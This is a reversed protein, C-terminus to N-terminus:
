ANEVEKEEISWAGIYMYGYSGNPTATINYGNSAYNMQERSDTNVKEAWQRVAPLGVTDIWNTFKKTGEDQPGDYSQRDYLLEVTTVVIYEPDFKRRKNPNREARQTFIARAGWWYKSNAGEPPRLGFTFM